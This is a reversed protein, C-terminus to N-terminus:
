HSGPCDFPQYGSTSFEEGGSKLILNFGRQEGTFITFYDYKLKLEYDYGINETPRKEGLEQLVNLISEPDAPVNEYYGKLNGSAKCIMDFIEPDDPPRGISMTYIFVENLYSEIDNILIPEWVPIYSTQRAIKGANEIQNKGNSIVIISKKGDEASILEKNRQYGSRKEIDYNLIDKTSDFEMLKTYIANYLLINKGSVSFDSSSISGTVLKSRTIDEDFMSYYLKSRYKRAFQEIASKVSLLDEEPISGSRDILVSIYLEEPIVTEYSSHEGIRKLSGDVYLPKVREEKGKVYEKALVQVDVKDSLDLYREGEQGEVLKFINFKVTVTESVENTNDPDNIFEVDQIRIEYKEQEEDYQALLNGSMLLLILLISGPWLGTLRHFGIAKFKRKM